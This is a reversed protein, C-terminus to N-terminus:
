LGQIGYVIMVAGSVVTISLDLPWHAVVRGQSPFYLPLYAILLVGGTLRRLRRSPLVKASPGGQLSVAASFGDYLLSLGLVLTLAAAAIVVLANTSLGPLWFTYAVLYFGAFISWLWSMKFVLSAASM